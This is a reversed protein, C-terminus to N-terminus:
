SITGGLQRVADLWDMCITDWTIQENELYYIGYGSIEIAKGTAPIGRFTAQHTARFLWRVMVKDGEAVIDQIAEQADPFPNDANTLFGRVKERMEPAFFTDILDLHGQNIVEEIYRRVVVKNAETTM